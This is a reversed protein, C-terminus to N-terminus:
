SGAIGEGRGNKRPWTGPRTSSRSGVQRRREKRSGSSPRLSMSGKQFQAALLGPACHSGGCTGAAGGAFHLLPSPRCGRTTAARTAATTAEMGAWPQQLLRGGRAMWGLSKICHEYAAPVAVRPETTGVKTQGAGGASHQCGDGILKASCRNRSQKSYGGTGNWSHGREEM